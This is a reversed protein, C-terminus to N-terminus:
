DGDRPGGEHRAEAAALANLRHVVDRLRAVGTDMDVPMAPMRQGTQIWGLAATVEGALEEVSEAMEYAHAQAAAQLAARIEILDALARLFGALTAQADEGDEWRGGAADLRGAVDSLRAALGHPGGGRRRPDM